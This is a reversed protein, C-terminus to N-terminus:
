RLEKLIKQIWAPALTLDHLYDDDSVNKLHEAIIHKDGETVKGNGIERLAVVVLEMIKNKYAFRKMDTSRKFLLGRGNGISINRPSGDTYYVVNAPMQTSIGLANLAASGTPAIRCKEKDAIAQAIDDISPYMIGMGWKDDILPYCYIGQALRIIIEDKCLRVLASRITDSSEKAAFDDPFFIHGRGSDEITTRIYEYGSMATKIKAM